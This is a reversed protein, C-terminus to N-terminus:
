RKSSPKELHIDTVRIAEHPDTNNYNTINNTEGNYQIGYKEEIQSGILTIFEKSYKVSETRMYTIFGGQYLSQCHMMTEKPSMNLQNSAVQLLNSTSFPKPPVKLIEKPSGISLKYDFNNSKELFKLLDDENEYNHSLVFDLNKSTFNGTIKYLNEIGGKTKKEMENDYVLRLAPTQCRGASLGNDKDNYLYKWLLPSIKFGVLIDLVQRAHQAKVLDM